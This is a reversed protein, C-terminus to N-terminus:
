EHPYLKAYNEFEEELHAVEHSNMESLETNLLTSRMEDRFGEPQLQRKRLFFVFDAIESLADSPLGKIGEYILRQYAQATM